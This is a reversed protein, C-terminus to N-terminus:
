KCQEECEKKAASCASRCNGHAKNCKIWGAQREPHGDPYRRRNAAECDEADADCQDNCRDYADVCQKLCKAKDEDTVDIPLAWPKPKAKAKPKSAQAADVFVEVVIYAAVAFFGLTILCPPSTLCGALVEEQGLFEPAGPGQSPPKMARRVPLDDLSIERLARSAGKSRSTV